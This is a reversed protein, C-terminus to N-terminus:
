KVVEEIFINLSQELPEIKGIRCKGIKNRIVSNKYTGVSGTYYFKCSNNYGFIDIGVSNHAIHKIFDDLNM